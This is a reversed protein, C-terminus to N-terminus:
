AEQRLARWIPNIRRRIGSEDPAEGSTSIFWEQMQGILESQTKPLGHEHIRVILDAYFGDWDYRPAPGSGGGGLNRNFIEFENEFRAVEDAMIMLDAKAVRAGPDNLCVAWWEKGGVERVRRIECSEPGSGCRRFMPLIDPAAVVVIGAVSRGGFCSPPISTVIEIQDVAAWGVIDAPACGWRAAAEILTYFPRPPLAM